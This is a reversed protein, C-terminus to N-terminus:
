RTSRSRQVAGRVPRRDSDRLVGEQAPDQLPVLQGHLRGAGRVRARAGRVRGPPEHHRQHARAPVAPRDEAGARAARARRVRPGGPRVRDDARRPEHVAGAPDRVREVDARRALRRHRHDAAAGHRGLGPLEGDARRADDGDPLVGRRRVDGQVAGDGAAARVRRGAARHLRVRGAVRRQVGGGAALRAAPVRRPAVLHEGARLGARHRDPAAGRAAPGARRAAGAGGDGGGVVREGLVALTEAFERVRREDDETLFLPRLFPCHVRDGFTLREARM